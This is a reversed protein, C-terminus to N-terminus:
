RKADIVFRGPNKLYFIDVLVDKHFIIEASLMKNHIPFFDISKVLESKGFTAFSEGLDTNFMDIYMKREGKSMHGYIRPISTTKFDLVIRETKTGKRYHQRISKLSSKTKNSGTHFIGKDLFISTKQDTVKRIREQFLNQSFSNTSLVSFLFVIFCIRVFFGKKITM